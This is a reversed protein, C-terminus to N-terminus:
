SPSSCSSRRWMWGPHSALQEVDHGDFIEENPTELLHATQFNQLLGTALGVVSRTLLKDSSCPFVGQPLEQQPNEPLHVHLASYLSFIVLRPGEASNRPRWTM